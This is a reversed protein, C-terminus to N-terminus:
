FGIRVGATLAWNHATRGELDLTTAEEFDFKGIYDKAMLRMGFGRGLAVDLGVGANFAVSTAHTNVVSLDVDYRVAGVGAQVFPLLARGGRALGPVGLQVGADYLLTRTSGVSVGGIFPLGIRLDSSGSALNGVLAIADSLPVALQIGYVPGSANSLSTGLPGDLLNSTVMYGAYPTVEAMPRASQAAASFAPLALGVLAGAIRVSTHM